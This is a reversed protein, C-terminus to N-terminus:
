PRINPLPEDKPGLMARVSAFGVIAILAIASATGEWGAMAQDHAHVHPIRTVAFLSDLLFGCLLASIAITALYVFTTRRGLVSWVTAVAAANTAPGTILFVLAAGPSVGKAILAAAIPISATACVYLPIGLAMMALMGGIGTGLAGAFFDDPVFAAIAGAVLIGGLLAKGIDKPLTYFGFRVARFLPNRRRHLCCDDGCPEPPTNGEHVKEEASECRETLVGGLLGTVFAAVPRFIAFLPGMMAYTPLISDVGTQPTSLLFSVTAGRSAGHKRLSMAVPIVGCSCLPLPIGLLSAKVVPGIGRGGLHRSVVEAPMIVSLAGAVAFGFLVYPAMVELAAWSERLVHILIDM